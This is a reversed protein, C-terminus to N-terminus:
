KLWSPNDPMTMTQPADLWAQYWTNLEQQQESTLRNYWLAGRNVIPFCINKRLDRINDREAEQEVYSERSQDYVLMEGDWKYCERHDLFHDVDLSEDPVQVYGEPLNEEYDYAHLYVYGDADLYARM